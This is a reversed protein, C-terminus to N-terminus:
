PSSRTFPAEFLSRSERCVSMSVLHWGHYDPFRQAQISRVERHAAKMDTAEVTGVQGTTVIDNKQIREVNFAFCFRTM